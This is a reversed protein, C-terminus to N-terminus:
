KNRYQPQETQHRSSGGPLSILKEYKLLKADRTSKFVSVPQSYYLFKELNCHKKKTFPM